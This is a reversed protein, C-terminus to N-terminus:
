KKVTRWTKKAQQRRNKSYPVARRFLHKKTVEECSASVSDEPTYHDTKM